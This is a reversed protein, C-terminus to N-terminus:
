PKVEQKQAPPSAYRYGNNTVLALVLEKFTYNSGVFEAVLADVSPEDGKGALHAGGHEYFRRAVCAGVEPLAAILATMDMPGDVPAGDIESASDIPLNNEDMDRYAGISNYRELTFGIPDMKQHCGACAPDKRHADLRERLTTPKTPDADPLTTDIGPPPPPVDQCLLNLRIFRGRRTPSTQTKHANLALFGPTTLIGARKGDDPLTIPTWDPGTIGEIGYVRALDENVHTDRTTFLDRFDGEREFVNEEFMREIEIRMSPGLTATMQPFKDPQKDLGDLGGINMFDRFFRTLAVRARPDNLLRTAQARVGGSTVLEGSKAAGRLEADPPADLLLFSLRSAMEWSTYRYAEPGPEGVEVRFLFHPSMLVGALMFKLGQVPDGLDAAVKSGLALLAAVEDGAAPRRWAKATFTGVFGDVCADGVKPAPCGTFAELRVPDAFIQDLVHYTAAEYKEADVPSITSRAASISSFGYLVDDAPLDTPMALPEGLLDRWANQIQPRTLRHLTAEALAPETTATGSAEGEPDGIVGVCGGAAALALLVPLYWKRM